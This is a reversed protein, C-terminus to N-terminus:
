FLATPNVPSGTGRVVRLPQVSLLFEYRKEEAAAVALDGLHANDLLAVGYSFIVGHIPVQEQVRGVVSGYLGLRSTSHRPGSCVEGRTTTEGVVGIAGSPFGGPLSRKM